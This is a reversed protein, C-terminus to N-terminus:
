RYLFELNASFTNNGYRPFVQNDATQNDHGLSVSFAFHRQPTWTGTFALQTYNADRLPSNLTGLRRALQRRLEVAGRVSIKASVALSTALTAASTAVVAANAYYLLEPAVDRRVGVSVTTKPTFTWDYALRGAPGDFSQFGAAPDAYDFRSYGVRGVVSSHGTVVLKTDAEYDMQVYSQPPLATQSLSPNSYHGETMRALVRLQNGKRSRYTVHPDVMGAEYDAFPNLANAYTNSVKALGAGLSWAPHWSYDVAAAYRQDLRYATQFGSRTADSSPTQARDYSMASKWRRGIAADWGLRASIGNSDLLAYANHAYHTFRLDARVRQRSLSKDFSLGAYTTSLTDGRPPRAVGTAAASPDIDDPLRFLNSDSSVGQGAVINFVESPREFADSQLDFADSQAAASSAPIAAVFSSLFLLIKLLPTTTSTRL